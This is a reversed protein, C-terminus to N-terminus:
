AGHPIALRWSIAVEVREEVTLSPWEDTTGGILVVDMKQLRALAATGAIAATNLRPFARDGDGADETFATFFLGVMSVQVSLCVSARM